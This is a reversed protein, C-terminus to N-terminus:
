HWRERWIAKLDVQGGFSASAPRLAIKLKSRKPKLVLGDGFERRYRAHFLENFEEPCRKAPTRLSTEPHLLFWSLAWNAPLPKGAAIIRGIGVRLSVPLEYGAREMPPEFETSEASMLKLVDLFQTAYNRFSSNGAYVQLLQEVERIIVPVDRGAKESRLADGLARRELGYFYLFVYGIYASPDRRGAALWDLYAARCEPLISSYSPWYTMGGGTRDSNSRNTPLSPDILAPEVSYGTVSALGRGLYVMGDPIRYGAITVDRGPPIWCEDASASGPTYSTTNTTPAITSTQNAVWERSPPRPAPSKQRGRTILWVVLAVVGLAIVIEM